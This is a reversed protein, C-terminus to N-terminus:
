RTLTTPVTVTRAPLRRYFPIVDVTAGRERLRAALWDRGGDGRCILIRKGAVDALCPLALVAESNFGSRPYEPALGARRIEAATSEGVALWHLGVPWQPWLDAMADLAHRAANASVFFVAHYLDLDLLRRRHDGSLPLPEIRLAPVLVPEHGAVRLRAALAEGQGAPRTVLVRSMVPRLTGPSHPGRGPGATVRRHRHGAGHREGPARDEARLVTKGDESAVLGRLWLRGDDELLAFGAIPVQCGGELRRNMAREATVRDWTLPDSLPALLHATREDEARCEIGVAGQGVAPLSEEPPMDYRIREHMELRKLGASALIIADFQGDDLKSLRTQVNGRLSSVKLDPRNALM